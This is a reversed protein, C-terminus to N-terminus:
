WEESYRGINRGMGFTPFLSDLSRRLANEFRNMSKSYENLNKGLLELEKVEDQSSCDGEQYTVRRRYELRRKLWEESSRLWDSSLSEISKIVDSLYKETKDYKCSLLAQDRLQKFAETYTSILLDDCNDLYCIYKDFIERWLQFRHENRLPLIYLDIMMEGRGMLLWDASIEFTECIRIIKSSDPLTKKDDNIWHNVASPSVRIKKAFESANGKTTKQILEKIRNKM